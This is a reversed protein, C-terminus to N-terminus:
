PPLVAVIEGPLPKLATAVAAVEVSELEHCSYWCSEEMVPGAVTLAESVKESGHFMMASASSGTWDTARELVLPDTLELRVAVPLPNVPLPSVTLTLM